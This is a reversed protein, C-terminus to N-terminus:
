SNELLSTGLNAAAPTSAIRARPAGRRVNRDGDAVATTRHFAPDYTDDVEKPVQAGVGKSRTVLLKERRDRTLHTRREFVVSENLFTDCLLPHTVFHFQSLM